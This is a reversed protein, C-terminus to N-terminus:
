AALAEGALVRAAAQAFEAGSRYRDERRPELARTLVADLGAPVDPALASAPPFRGSLKDRLEDPGSFPLRGTLMEYFSVGLAYLDSEPGTSGLAQEPAMYTPTGVVSNTAAPAAPDVPRAIGFDMVKVRGDDAIMVNAPKLDRHIVGRAHAHDAAAALAALIAVARAPPLRRGPADNLRAHLTRGAIYEFVLHVAGAGEVAGHFEVINPHRLTSVLRAEALFRERQRPSGQLERRLRKIAVARGTERDRGRYVTGMGGEGARAVLEYRGALVAADAARRRRRRVRALAALLVLFLASAALILGDIFVM